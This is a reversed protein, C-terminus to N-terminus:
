AAPPPSLWSRTVTLVGHGMKARRRPIRGAPPSPLWPHDLASARWRGFPVDGVQRAKVPLDREPYAAPVARSMHVEGIRHDREKAGVIGDRMAGDVGCRRAPSSRSSLESPIRLLKQM